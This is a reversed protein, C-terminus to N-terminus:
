APTPAPAPTSAVSAQPTPPSTEGPLPNSGSPVFIVAGGGGGGGSSSTQTSPPSSVTGTLTNNSGAVTGALTGSQTDGSNSGTSTSPAQAGGLNGSVESALAVPALSFALGLSLAGLIRPLRNM